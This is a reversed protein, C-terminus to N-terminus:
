RNTEDAFTQRSYAGDPADFKGAIFWDDGNHDKEGPIHDVMWEVIEVDPNTHYIEGELRFEFVGDGTGPGFWWQIPYFTEFISLWERPKAGCQWCV